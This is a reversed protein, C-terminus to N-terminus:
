AITAHKFLMYERAEALAAVAEKESGFEKANAEILTRPPDGDGDTLWVGPELQVKMIRGKREGDAGQGELSERPPGSQGNSLPYTYVM